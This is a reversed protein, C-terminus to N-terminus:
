DFYGRGFRYLYTCSSLTAAVLTQRQRISLLATKNLVKYLRNFDKRIDVKDEYSSGKLDSGKEKEAAKLAKDLNKFTNSVFKSHTKAYNGATEVIKILDAKKPMIFTHGKTVESEDLEAIEVNGFTSLFHVNSDIIFAMFPKEGEETDWDDTHKALKALGTYNPDMKLGDKQIAVLDIKDGVTVLRSDDKALAPALGTDLKSKGTLALLPLLRKLLKEALEANITFQTGEKYQSNIRKVLAKARSEGQNFWAGIKVVLRKFFMIFKQFLEKIKEWANKAFDKLGETAYRLKSINTEVSELSINLKNARKLQKGGLVLLADNLAETSTQIQAEVVEEPAEEPNALIQENAEVQTVIAESEEETTDIAESIESATNQDEQLGEATADNQVEEVVDIDSGTTSDTVEVQVEEEELSAILDYINKAM